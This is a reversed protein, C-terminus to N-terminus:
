IDAPSLQDSPRRTSRLSDARCALSLVQYGIHENSAINRARGSQLGPCVRRKDYRDHRVVAAAKSQRRRFVQFARGASFQKVACRTRMVSPNLSCTEKMGSLSLCAPRMRYLGAAFAEGLCTQYQWEQVNPGHWMQHAVTLGQMSMPRLQNPGAATPAQSHPM